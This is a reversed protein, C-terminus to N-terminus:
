SLSRNGLEQATQVDLLLFNKAEEITSISQIEEEFVDEEIEILNSYKDANFLRSSLVCGIITNILFTIM